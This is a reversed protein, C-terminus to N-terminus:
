EGGESNEGSGAHSEGGERHRGGSIGIDVKNPAVLKPVTGSGTPAPMAGGPEAQIAPAPGTTSAAAAGSGPASKSAGAHRELLLVGLAVVAVVVVVSVFTRTTKM